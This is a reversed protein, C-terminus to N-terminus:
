YRVATVKAYMDGDVYYQTKDSYVEYAVPKSRSYGDPAKIEALVYVGAGIPQPTIFYGTNQDAYVQDKLSDEGAMLSDLVTTYATMQGTKAGKEDSLMIRENELCVPTGKKVTGTCLTGAGNQVSSGTGERAASTIGYAGMAELFERSGLITTDQLYFKADGPKFQKLFRSREEAGDLLQADREIEEFSTYRAGAYLAFVANDHLIYEGTEADVKNIKLRTSFFRNHVLVDVYGAFDELSYHNLAAPATVTWPVLMPAYVGDYATLCGTMAPLQGKVGSDESISGYFYRNSLSTGDYTSGNATEKGHTKDAALYASESAGGDETGINERGTEGRHNLHYYDKLPDFMEQSIRFGAYDYSGGPYTITSSLRDCDLGFKYIEYDGHQNHARIVYDREDQTNNHPWEDTFRILYNDARAQQVATMDFDYNYHSAFNEAEEDPQSNEYLVPLSIEKPKDTIFSRNRFDNVSQDRRKPQQEVIVYTGYPLYASIGIHAKEFATSASLTTYDHDSGGGAASDWTVAYITDLDNMYFPKLYNYAKAIAHYLAEDYIEEDYNLDKGSKAINEGLGNDEMLKAAEAKLYWKVAFQRVEDSAEANAKAYDSASKSTDTDSGNREAPYQEYDIRSGFMKERIWRFPKFSTDRDGGATGDGDSGDTNEITHDSDADDMQYKEYFTEEWHQGPYNRMSTGTYTSHMDDDWIDANAAALADFFKEYNYSDDTGAEGTKSDNCLELIRTYGNNQSVNIRDTLAADTNMGQYSYLSANSKVAKGSLGGQSDARLSTSHSKKEGANLAAGAQPDEYIDWVNNAASSVTVSGPEHEVKTFLKQVNASELIGNDSIFDMHPYEIERNEYASEYFWIVTDYNGDGSNDKYQPIMPNGNRDLWTINGDEDRYLRELNSKLYAKFRFDPISENRELLPNEEHVSLYTDNEYEIQRIPELHREKGCHGCSSTEQPNGYGCNICYWVLKAEPYTDIDKKVIVKQRIPRELIPVPIQSTGADEMIDTQGRYYLTVPQIYSDPGGIIPKYLLTAGLAPNFQSNGNNYIKLKIPGKSQILEGPVSILYMGDQYVAALPTLSEEQRTLTEERYETIWESKVALTGDDNFKQMVGDYLWYTKGPVDVLTYNDPLADPYRTDCIVTQDKLSASTLFGNENKVINEIAPDTEQYSIFVDYGNGTAKRIYLEGDIPNYIANDKSTGDFVYDYSLMAYTKGNEQLIDRIRMQNFYVLYHSVMYQTINVLWETDTSGTLEIKAWPSTTSTESYGTKELEENYLRMFTDYDDAGLTTVMPTGYSIYNRPWVGIRAPEEASTHNVPYSIGNVTITDGLSAEVRSGNLYVYSDRVGIVPSTVEVRYPVQIAETVKVWESVAFSAGQEMDHGEIHFEAAEGDATLTSYLARQANHYVPVTITLSPAHNIEQYSNQGNTFLNEKGNVSLEYGESRSLERIVYSSGDTQAILPRGIWCNQNNEENNAIPYSTFSGRVGELGAQNSSRKYYITGDGEDSDVLSQATNSSDYGVYSENDWSFANGTSRDTHLNKPADEYWGDRTDTIQGSTYDYMKGPAETFALFSANGDRDTATVSVLNGKKYVTGTKGDPHTIDKAAFLGYIAGELTGDGNDLGYSHFTEAEKSSLNLDRKNFHIEGEIRHDYMIFTHDIIDSEMQGIRSATSVEFSVTNRLLSDAAGEDTEFFAASIQRIGNGVWTFFTRVARFLTQLLNEAEAQGVANSPTATAWENGADSASAIPIQIVAEDGVTIELDAIIANSEADDMDEEAYTFEVGPVSPAVNAGSSLTSYSSDSPTSLSPTAFPVLNQRDRSYVASSEAIDQEEPEQRAHVLSGGKNGMLDKYESSTVTKIEIPIDDPHLNHLVYGPRAIIEAASYDYKLAIFEKYYTDRDAELEAKAIDPELSHFFGGEQVLRECKEVEAQWAEKAAQELAENLEDIESSDGEYYKIVPDPHGDCYGKKYVYYKTDKHGRDGAAKNILQGNQDTIDGDIECPDNKYDGNESGPGIDWGEWKNFQSSNENAWNSPSELSTSTLQSSDFAELIDFEAEELPKGTESDFKVLDINYNSEWGERHSYRHIDIQFEGASIVPEDPRDPPPPGGITIHLNTQYSAFRTQGTVKYKINASDRYDAVIFKFGCLGAPAIELGGLESDSGALDLIVNRMLNSNDELDSASSASFDIKSGDNAFTLGRVSNKLKLAQMYKKIEPETTSYDFSRHYLGDDAIYPASAPMSVSNATYNFFSLFKAEKWCKKFYAKGDNNFSDWIATSGTEDPNYGSMIESGLGDRILIDWDEDASNGFFGQKIEIARVSCYMIAAYGTYSMSDKIDVEPIDGIRDHLLSILILNFKMRELGGNDRCAHQIMQPYDKEYNTPFYVDVLAMQAGYTGAYGADVDVHDAICSLFHRDFRSFDIAVEEGSGKLRATSKRSKKDSAWYKEFGLKSGTKDTYTWEFSLGSPILGQDEIAKNASESFTDTAIEPFTPWVYAERAYAIVSCAMIGALLFAVSRKPRMKSRM